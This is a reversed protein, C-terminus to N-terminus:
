SNSAIQVLVDECLLTLSCRRLAVLGRAQFEGLIENVTQRTCGIMHGIEEHSISLDLLLGVPSSTGWNRGLRLLVRALRQEAPLNARDTIMESALRLRASVLKMLNVALRPYSLLLDEFANRQLAFAVGREIMQANVSQQPAGGVTGPGLLNGPSAYWFITVDGNRSLDYIKARGSQLYFVRDADDRTRFVHQGRRYEVCEARAFFDARAKNSSGAFLDGKQWYWPTAVEAHDRELGPM